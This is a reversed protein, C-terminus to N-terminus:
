QDLVAVMYSNKEVPVVAMCLKAAVLVVAMNVSPVGTMYWGPKVLAVAKHLHVVCLVVAMCSLMVAANGAMNGPVPAKDSHAEALIVVMYLHVGVALVAMHLRVAVPVVAMYVYVAVPAVDRCLRTLLPAETMDWDLEVPVVVTHSHAAVPSGTMRLNPVDPVVAMKVVLTEVICSPTAAPAGDENVDIWNWKKLVWFALGIHMMMRQTAMQALLDETEVSEENAM